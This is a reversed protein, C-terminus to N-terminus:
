ATKVKTARSSKRPKKAAPKRKVATNSEDKVLLEGIHFSWAAVTMSPPGGAPGPLSTSDCVYLGPNDFVEGNYGVVGEKITQGMKAGGCQHVTLPTPLTSVPNGTIQNVRDFAKNFDSYISSNKEEYDIQLRGNTFYALGDAADEGMGTFSAYSALKRKMFAPIKLQNVGAMAGYLLCLNMPDESFEIGNVWGATNDKVPKNLKWAGFTDGNTGVGRGLNPMGQLGGSERSQFLLRLSNITGASLIVKKAKLTRLKKTHHDKLDVEYSDEGGVKVRRIELAEHLDLVKLGKRIAEELYVFDLTSKAGDESGLIHMGSWDDERREVGDEQTVATPRGPVKPMLLGSAPNALTSKCFEPTDGFVEPLSNPIQDSEDPVRSGFRGMVNQYHREMDAATVEDCHGDWYDDRLPRMHLGGYVHSGGGVGSSCLMWVGKNYLFEFLGDKNLTLGKKPLYPLHLTRLAHTYLKGGQPFPKRSPIGMSRTPMTDRWPGREILSVKAGSLALKHAVISGGFGSGIILYDDM